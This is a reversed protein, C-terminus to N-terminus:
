VHYPHPFIDYFAKSIDDVDSTKSNDRKAIGDPFVYRAWKLLMSVMSGDFFSKEYTILLKYMEKQNKIKYIIKHRYRACEIIDLNLLKKLHYGITTPPKELESSIEMRSTKPYLFLFLIIKRAIDMRLVSLVKKDINGVKKAAYFRLYKKESKITIFEQKELYRLNYELTTKPINLERSLRRLHLGPYKL